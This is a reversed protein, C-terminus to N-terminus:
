DSLNIHKGGPFAVEGPHMLLDKSRVTLVVMIDKQTYDYYLLVLVAAQRIGHINTNWGYINEEFSCTYIGLREIISLFGSEEEEPVTM